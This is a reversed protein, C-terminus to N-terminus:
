GDRQELNKGVTVLLRVKLPRPGGFNERRWSRREEKKRTKRIQWAGEGLV